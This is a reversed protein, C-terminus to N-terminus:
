KAWRELIEGLSWKRGVTIQHKQKYADFQRESYQAEFPAGHYTRMSPEMLKPHEYTAINGNPHFFVWLRVIRFDNVWEGSGFAIEVYGERLRKESVERSGYMALPSFKAPKIPKRTEAM